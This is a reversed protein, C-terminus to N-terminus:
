SGIAFDMLSDIPVLDYPTSVVFLVLYDLGNLWCYSNLGFGHAKGCMGARTRVM